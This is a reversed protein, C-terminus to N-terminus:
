RRLEEDIAAARAPAIWAPVLLAAPAVMLPIPGVASHSSGSGFAPNIDSGQGTSQCRLIDIFKIQQHAHIPRVLASHHLRGVMPPLGRYCGAFNPEHRLVARDVLSCPVYM